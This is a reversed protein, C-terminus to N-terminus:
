HDETKLEELRWDEIYQYAFDQPTIIQRTYNYPFLLSSSYSFLNLVNYETKVVAVYEAQQKM